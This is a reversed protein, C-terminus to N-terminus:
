EDVRLAKGLDKIAQRAVKATMEAAENHRRDATHTASKGVEDAVALRNRAGGTNKSTSM